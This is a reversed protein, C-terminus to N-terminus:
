GGDPIPYSKPPKAAALIAAGAILLVGSQLTTAIMSKGHYKMFEATHGKGQARLSEMQPILGLSVTVAMGGAVILTALIALASKTPYTVLLLGTSVLAVAALVLEYRAFVFFMLSAYNGAAEHQADARVSADTEAIALTPMSAPATTSDIKGPPTSAFTAPPHFFSWGFVFTAITGGFWLAWALNTIFVLLYRM